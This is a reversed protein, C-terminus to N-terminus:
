VIFNHNYVYVILNYYYLRKSSAAPPRNPFFNDLDYGRAEFQDYTLPTIRVFIDGFSYGNRGFIIRVRGGEVSSTMNRLFRIRVGQTFFPQFFFCIMYMSKSACCLTSINMYMHIYWKSALIIILAVISFCKLNPRM